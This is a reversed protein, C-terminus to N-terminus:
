HGCIATGADQFAAVFQLPLYHESGAVRRPITTLSQYWAFTLNWVQSTFILVISALEVAVRQPLVASLSLLVVPLFSLIPVSQLVDLLPLLVREARRDSAAMYGYVLTFLLSLVYAAAMRLVSLAAYGPLARVTLTIAPGQIVDAAGLGLRVGVYLVVVLTLLVIGDGWSLRRSSPQESKFLRLFQSM